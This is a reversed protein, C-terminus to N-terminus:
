QTLLAGVEKMGECELGAERLLQYDEKIKDNWNFGSGSDKGIHNQYIESAQEKRDTFLYIHALRLRPLSTLTKPEELAIAKQAFKEAKKFDGLLLYGNEINSSSVLLGNKAEANSSDLAKFIEYSKLGYIVAQRNNKLNQHNLLFLSNYVWGINTQYKGDTKENLNEYVKILELYYKEAENYKDIKSKLYALNYLNLAVDPLYLVPNNDAWVKKIKLSEKYNGEADKYKKNIIQLFALKSLSMAYNLQYVEPKKVALEQLMIMAKEHNKEAEFYRNMKYQLMALYDFCIAIDPKFVGPNKAELEHYLELAERINKKSEIYKQNLQQLLSLNALCIAIDSQYVDPNKEGLERFLKLAEEHNKEAEVYKNNKQQILALNDLNVAASYKVSNQSKKILERNIKSAEEANREAEFYRNMKLQLMSLNNLCIAIDRKYVDLKKEELERFLKLAEEHNKEAEVYKFIIQQFLALNDLSSAYIHKYTDPKKKALEHTIKMAELYYIEAEVFNQIEKQINALNSLTLASDYKSTSLKLAIKCWKIGKQHQNQERLFYSFTYINDYNTTDALVATEYAEEAEKFQFNLKYLNAQFMLKEINQQLASDASAIVVLATDKITLWKEKEKKAKEIESTSNVSELLKIAGIIDGLKFREFAQKHIESADDFNERAFQESLEEMQSQQVKLHEEIQRKQNWYDAKEIKAQDLFNELEKIKRDKGKTLAELSIEYYEATKKAILGEPCLVIKFRHQPNSSILWREFVEKRNVVEFGKKHIRVGRIHDGPRKKNFTLEFRGDTGSTSPVADFAKIEVGAIPMNGSNQETVIGKQVTQAMILFPITCFLLLFLLQKM